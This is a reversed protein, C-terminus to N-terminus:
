AFRSLLATRIDRATKTPLAKIGHGAMGSGAVGIVLDATGFWRHIFLQVFDVSQINRVPLVKTGRRWGGSRVLLRDGDLAVAYRRWALWRTAAVVIVGVGILAGQL